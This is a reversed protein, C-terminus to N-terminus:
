LGAGRAGHLAQAHTFGSYKLQDIMGQRSFPSVKLYEKAMRVAQKMWNAGAHSAGYTADRTSFGSYKLQKILGNLSFASVELYQKAMRVAQTRNNSTAPAATASSAGVAFAVTSLLAAVLAIRKM